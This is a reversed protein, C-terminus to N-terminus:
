LERAAAGGGQVNVHVAHASPVGYGARSFEERIAQNTDFYVQWYHDTHCYPRVALQAGMANFDLIEVDPAPDAKVNPIAALRSKLRAIADAPDVTHDIQAVRDVRRYPSASFNKLTDGLLKGNGVLTVVNDPALITTAFLGIERVTGEVGGGSIYDGVKFPRLVMLFAGAAFNALLGSWAAGIAVGAAALLAAFSTTEFGFFGLIGIVLVINLVVGIISALYRQLTADVQRATLAKQILRAGLGILWRGAWWLAFAGLLKLGFNVIIQQATDLTDAFQM